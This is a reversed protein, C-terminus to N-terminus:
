RLYRPRNSGRKYVYWVIVGLIAVPVIIFAAGIALGVGLGILGLASVWVFIRGFSPM